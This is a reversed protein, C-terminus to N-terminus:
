RLALLEVQQLLVACGATVGLRILEPHTVRIAHRPLHVRKNLVGLGLRSRILRQPAEELLLALTWGSFRLLEVSLTTVSHGSDLAADSMSAGRARLQNMGMANTHNSTDGSASRAPTPSSTAQVTDDLGPSRHTTSTFANCGVCSAIPVRATSRLALATASFVGSWRSRSRRSFLTGM